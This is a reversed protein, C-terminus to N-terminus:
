RARSRPRAACGTSSPSGTRRARPASLLDPRELPNGEPGRALSEYGIIEGSARHVLPQYLSRVRRRALLDSLM